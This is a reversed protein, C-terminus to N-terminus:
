NKMKYRNVVENVESQKQLLFHLSETQAASINTSNELTKHVGGILVLKNALVKTLYQIYSTNQYTKPKTGKIKCKLNSILQSTEVLESLVSSKDQTRDM